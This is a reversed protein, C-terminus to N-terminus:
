CAIGRQKLRCLVGSPRLNLHPCAHFTAIHTRSIDARSPWAGTMDATRVRGTGTALRESHRQYKKGSCALIAAACRRPPAPLRPALPAVPPRDLRAWTPASDGNESEAYRCSHVLGQDNSHQCAPM